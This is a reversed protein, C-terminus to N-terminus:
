SLTNSLVRSTLLSSSNLGAVTAEISALSSNVIPIIHHANWLLAIHHGSRRRPQTEANSEMPSPAGDLHNECLVGGSRTTQRSM